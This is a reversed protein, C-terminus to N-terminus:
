GHEHSHRSEHRLEAIWGGVGWLLVLAGFLSFFLSTAVGALALTIGLGVVAPWVTPRPLHIGHAATWAEDDPPPVPAPEITLAPPPEAERARRERWLAGAVVALFSAVFAPLWSKLRSMARRWEDPM